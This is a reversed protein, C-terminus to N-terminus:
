RNENIEMQKRSTQRAHICETERLSSEARSWARRPPAFRAGGLFALIGQSLLRATGLASAAECVEGGSPRPDLLAAERRDSSRAYAAYALAFRGGPAAVAQLGSASSSRAAGTPLWTTPPVSHFPGPGRCGLAAARRFIGGPWGCIDM